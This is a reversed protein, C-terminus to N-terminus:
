KWERLPIQKEGETRSRLARAAANTTGHEAAGNENQRQRSREAVSAEFYKALRELINDLGSACLKETLGM